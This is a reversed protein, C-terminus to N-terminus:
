CLLILVIISIFWLGFMLCSIVSSIFFCEFLKWLMGGFLSVM